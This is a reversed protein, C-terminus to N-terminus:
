NLGSMFIVRMANAQLAFLKVIAKRNRGRRRTLTISSVKLFNITEKGEIAAKPM